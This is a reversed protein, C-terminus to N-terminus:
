GEATLAALVDDIRIEETGEPVAKRTERLFAALPVAWVFVVARHREGDPRVDGLFEMRLEEWMGRAWPRLRVDGVGVERTLGEAVMRRDLAWRALVRGEHTFTVTLAFPDAPDYLLHALLPFRDAEGTRLQVVLTKRLVPNM